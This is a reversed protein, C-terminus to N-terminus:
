EAQRHNRYCYSEYVAYGMRKIFVGNSIRRTRNNRDKPFYLNWVREVRNDWAKELCSRCAREVVAYNVGCKKAVYPYLEGTIKYDMHVAAFVVAELLYRYGQLDLRFGMMLLLNNAIRRLTSHEDDDLDLLIDMSAKVLFDVTFPRLLVTGMDYRYLREELSGGFLLTSALVKPRVGLMYAHDVLALADLNPMSMDLVLLDPRFLLIEEMANDVHTCVMIECSDSMAKIYKECIMPVSEILYVKQM